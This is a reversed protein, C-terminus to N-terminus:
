RAFFMFLISAVLVAVAVGAIFRIWFRIPLAALPGVPLSPPGPPGLVGISTFKRPPGLGRASSAEPQLEDEWEHFEYSM